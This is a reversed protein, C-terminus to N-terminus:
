TSQARRDGRWWQVAAHLHDFAGALKNAFDRLTDDRAIFTRRLSFPHTDPTVVGPLTTCALEYGADRVAQKVRADFDGRPYCFSRTRIGAQREIVSRSDEIECRLDAGDLTTLSRHTVSHAGFEVGHRAMEDVQRWSLPRPAGHDRLVPLQEGGIYGATLFITAPIERRALLPFARTYNDEFGDDFTVIV